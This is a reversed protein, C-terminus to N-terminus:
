MIEPVTIGKIELIEGLLQLMAYMAIIAIGAKTPLNLYAIYDTM